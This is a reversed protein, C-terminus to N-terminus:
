RRSHSVTAPFWPLKSLSFARGRRVSEQLFPVCSTTHSARCVYMCVCVCLQVQPPLLEELAEEDVVLEDDGTGMRRLLQMLVLFAQVQVQLAELQFLCATHAHAVCLLM